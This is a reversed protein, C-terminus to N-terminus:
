KGLVLHYLRDHLKNMMRIVEEEANPLLRPLKMFAELQRSDANFAQMQKITKAGRNEKDWFIIAEQNLIEPEPQNYNGWYVPICGAAIAEFIKETCYGYANSNEPCINFRYQQMYAVKDDSYKEKLTEDNHFLYSPCDVKDIESLKNYMETRLGSIDARAILCAFKDRRGINPYRLQACRERIKKEDLTPEFVYTLWLPFRMYRSDEFYDFGISLRCDKDGLLGDAYEAWQPNRLNEGSFFVKIGDNVHQLIDRDNFMSCFNIQTDGINMLGTNYVFQYLWLSAYDKVPWWNYFQVKGINAYKQRLYEAKVFETHARQSKYTKLSKFM